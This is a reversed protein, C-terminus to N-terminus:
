LVFTMVAGTTKDASANRKCSVARLNVAVTYINKKNQHKKARRGGTLQVRGRMGGGGGGLLEESGFDSFDRGERGLIISSNSLFLSTFFTTFGM